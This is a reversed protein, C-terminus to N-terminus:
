KKAVLAEPLRSISRMEINRYFVEAGESQLQIKGKTLPQEKGDDGPQRSHYLIMVTKGNVIHVSIDGLCYVELVNWEGTPKEADPYKFCRLGGPKGDGFTQLLGASDYRFEGTKFEMAPIDVISKAISWYDGCDGEQVQFEQSRLWFGHGAGHAGVGHYLLGSDRKANKRPAWKQKGWKFELRLHYNSFEAQTSIGGFQEGSIRLAPKNDESVISFTKRPDINVGIPAGVQKGTLTDFVPGLYTDWGTLDKGNMLPKWESTSTQAMQGTKCGPLAIFFILFVVLSKQILNLMKPRNLTPHSSLDKHYM